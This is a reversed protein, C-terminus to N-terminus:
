PVLVARGSLRGKEMLRFAENIEELPFRQVRTQIKGSAALALLEKLETYTGWLSTTVVMEYPLWMSNYPLSGGAAGVVLIIGKRGFCAAANKLTYDSGVLDLIAQAGEGATIKKIEGAVERRGNLAHDLGLELGMQLKEEEVDIGILRTAPSLVKMIQVAFYGLGGLGIIVATSGPYLFPLAKKIARYPTLGADTLSAAEVPDIGPIKILHRSDPVLLYEAYGGETTIGVLNGAVCHQEEGLRCFRCQGCGWCGYVVVPDGKKFESVGPGVEEVYGANEHGLTMPLPMPRSGAILHLDSHCVGAGAIKVLVGGSNVAPIPVDDIRIPKNYEHLRAAKMSTEWKHNIKFLEEGIHNTIM